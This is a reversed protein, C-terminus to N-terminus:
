FWLYCNCCCKTYWLARLEKVVQLFLQVPFGNKEPYEVRYQEDLNNTIEITETVFNESSVNDYNYSCGTLLAAIIMLFIARLFKLM